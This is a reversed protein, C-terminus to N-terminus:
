SFSCMVVLGKEFLIANQVFIIINKLRKELRFKKAVGTGGIVFNVPKYTINLNACM